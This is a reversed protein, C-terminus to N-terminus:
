PKLRYFRCMVSIDSEVDPAFYVINDLGGHFRGAEGMNAGSFVVCPLRLGSRCL